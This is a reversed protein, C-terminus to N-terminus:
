FVLAFVPGFELVLCKRAVQLFCHQPLVMSNGGWNGARTQMLGFKEGEVQCGKNRDSESKVLCVGDKRGEELGEM